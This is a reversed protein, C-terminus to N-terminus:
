PEPQDRPCWYVNRTAITGMEIQTGCRRCPRGARHYVYFRDDSRVAGKPKSRDQPYTTVIRGIKAGDAMVRALDKWMARWTKLRLSTGPSRPHVGNLFLVESRYINGIGAVISQDMMLAGIPSRSRVIKAFSTKPDATEDLPNPGIRTELLRRHSEDYLEIAIAGRLEFWHEATYMRFRLIGRPELLPLKGDRFNGFRGLHVHLYREKGFDYLLHKGIAEIGRVVLGDIAAAVDDSRGNPSDAHLRRGVLLAAQLRAHRAVQPGEPM